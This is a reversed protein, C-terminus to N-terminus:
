AKSVNKKKNARLLLHILIGLCMIISSIYPFLRGYNKVVALVTRDKFFRTEYYYSDNYTYGGRDQFSAQYFTYGKHRLPENMKILVSRSVDDEILNIDSSFSKAEPPNKNPHMVKKFDILEIEIPLYTRTNRLDLYFTNGNYTIFQQIIEENGQIQDNLNAIFPGQYAIYNGNNSIDEGKVKFMLCARNQEYEKEPEKQIIYFSKGAGLYNDSLNERDRYECNTYFQQVEIQFPLTANNSIINGNNLVSQNFTTYEDYETNSINIIALEKDYHDEWFNSSKGEEIPMRGEENSFATLGGGALLLLAGAHTITIGIKSLKLINPRFFYFSLNITMISMVLRGSPIPIFGWFFYPASFYKEQAQYLGINAQDLTGVIVLVIMWALTFVFITPSGLFKIVPNSQIIQRITNNM